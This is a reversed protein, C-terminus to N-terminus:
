AREPIPSIGDTTVGPAGGAFELLARGGDLTERVEWAVEPSKALALRDRLVDNGLVRGEGARGERVKPDAPARARADDGDLM